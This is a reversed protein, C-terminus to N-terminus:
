GRCPRRRRVSAVLAGATLVLAGAPAPVSVWIFAESHGDPRLAYGGVITQGNFHAVSTADAAAYSPPLYENLNVFSAATGCWVGAVPFTQGPVHAHGAQALGDTAVLESDLGPYPNVDIGSAATGSWITAHGIGGVYVAGAQQGPAMAGIGGETGDAWPPMLNVVSQPTGSWMAPYSNAGGNITVAGGQHVGDTGWIWSEYAGPPNM